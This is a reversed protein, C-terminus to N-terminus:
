RQAWCREASGETSSGGKKPRNEHEHEYAALFEERRAQYFEPGIRGLTVLRRLLAEASVGFPAAAASLSAYDWSEPSGERAVVAPSALVQAAPMLVAAAIANRRAELRRNPPVARTDTIVDCLGETHLHLHAYEHLLSFLRRAPCRRRQGHDRAAERLVALVRADGIARGQREHDGHRPRRPLGGVWTNLHDYVTGSRGPPLQLPSNTLVTERAAVAIQEDSEPLPDIRWGTPSEVEELEDLQLVYERQAHARRYDAHLAPSWAGAAAGDHRRFDWLTDFGQPPEPLFFVALSRKYLKAAKRLQAITPQEEGSEWAAVRDDPLGLKRSAAVPTLDITVRAWRLVSPEVVAPISKAM